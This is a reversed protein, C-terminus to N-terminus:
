IISEGFIAQFIARTIGYSGFVIILGFTAWMLTDRGKTVKESAGGSTLLLFGGYVFFLLAIAGVIGLFVKVVQAILQNPDSTNLPNSLSLTAALTPSAALLLAAGSLVAVSIIRKTNNM